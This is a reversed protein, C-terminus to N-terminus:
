EINREYIVFVLFIDSYSLLRVAWITYTGPYGTAHVFYTRRPPAGELSLKM